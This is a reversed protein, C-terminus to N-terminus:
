HQNDSTHLKIHSMNPTNEIEKSFCIPSLFPPSTFHSLIYM